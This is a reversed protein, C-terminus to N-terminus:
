KITTYVTLGRRPRELERLRGALSHTCYNSKQNAEGPAQQNNEKPQEKVVHRFM